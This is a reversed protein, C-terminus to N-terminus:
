IYSLIILEDIEAKTVNAMERLDAGEPRCLIMKLNFLERVLGSREEDSIKQPKKSQLSKELKSFGSLVVESGKRYQKGEIGNKVKRSVIAKIREQVRRLIEVLREDNKPGVRRSSKAIIMSKLQVTLLAASTLSYAEQESTSTSIREMLDSETYGLVAFFKNLSSPYLIVEPAALANLTLEFSQLIRSLTYPNEPSSTLDFTDVLHKRANIVERSIQQRQEATFAPSTEVIKEKSQLQGSDRPGIGTSNQFASKEESRNGRKFREFM